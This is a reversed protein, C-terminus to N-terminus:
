LLFRSSEAVCDFAMGAASTAGHLIDRVVRGECRSRWIDVGEGVSVKDEQTALSVLIPVPDTQFCAVVSSSNNLAHGLDTGLVNFIATM